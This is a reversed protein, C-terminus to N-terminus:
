LDAVNLINVATIRKKHYRKDGSNTRKRPANDFTDLELYKDSLELEFQERIRRKDQVKTILENYRQM